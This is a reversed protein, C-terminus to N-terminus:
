FYELDLVWCCWLLVSTRLLLMQVVESISSFRGRNDDATHTHGFLDTTFPRKKECRRPRKKVERSLGWCKKTQQSHLHSFTTRYM